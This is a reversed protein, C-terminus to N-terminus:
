GLDAASGSHGAPHKATWCHATKLLCACHKGGDLPAPPPNASKFTFSIGLELIHQLEIVM